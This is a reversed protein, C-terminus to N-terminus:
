AMAVEKADSNESLFKGVKRAIARFHLEEIQNNKKLIGLLDEPQMEYEQAMLFLEENLEQNSLTMKERTFVERILLARKVHVRAKERWNEVLQELTMDNEKAYDELSKGQERQEDATEQLRRGALIEWMNDPVHVTSRELLGDLLRENVMEGVMEEKARLITDRLREKL